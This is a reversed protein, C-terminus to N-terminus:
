LAHRGAGVERLWALVGAVCIIGILGAGVATFALRGGMRYIAAVAADANNWRAIDWVILRKLALAARTLPDRQARERMLRQYARPPEEGFVGNASLASTLRALRDLAFSGTNQLSAILIDQVTRVGDMLDMLAVDEPELRLYRGAGNDGQPNKVVFYRGGSRRRLEAREVNPVLRPVFTAYEIRGRITEWIGDM